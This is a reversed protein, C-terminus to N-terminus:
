ELGEGVENDAIDELSHCFRHAFMPSNIDTSLCEVDIGSGELGKYIADFLAKDAAEDYFDQGPMSIASIGELPVWVKTRDPRICNDKLRQAIIKGLQECESATTRMLTVSSSHELLKRRALEKPVTNRPGFNVMDLAGLSIIQPIGAKSAATLRSEGASFVGGVLEDALETTTLDMVIDLRGDKVFREMARGGAGTAHFVYVEYHNEELLKRIADAGKTTVGFMTLGAARKRDRPTPQMTRKAYAKAMGVVAAAANDIVARLIENLGAIDVISHMMTIDTEAVYSSTDSSAVTSVILKPLTIPLERMVAASISTGNSGGLSIIGHIERDKHLKGVFAAAVRAITKIHEARTLSQLDNQDGQFRGHRLFEDRRILIAEHEAALRGTDILVVDIKPDLKLIQTRLYLLEELKTDFTGVVAITTIM